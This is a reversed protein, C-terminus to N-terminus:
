RMTSERRRRCCRCAARGDSVVLLYGDRANHNARHRAGGVFDDLHGGVYYHAEWCRVRRSSVGARRTRHM